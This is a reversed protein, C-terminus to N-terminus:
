ARAQVLYQITAIIKEAEFPKRFCASFGGRCLDYAMQEDMFASIAVAPIHRTQTNGLLSVLLDLGTMEGALRMDILLVDPQTEPIVRLAQEADPLSTPLMDYLCLTEALAEASSPDDEVIFATIKKDQM